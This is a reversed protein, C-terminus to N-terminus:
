SRAFYYSEQDTLQFVLKHVEDDFMVMAEGTDSLKIQEIHEPALQDRYAAGIMDAESGEQRFFIKILTNNSIFPGWTSPQGAQGFYTTANQDATWMAAQYNRWTKTAMAVYQELSPVSAMFKFEDFITILGQQRQRRHGDRVWRNLAEFGHDYYLPLLERDAHQLDYAVVDSGFDWRFTTPTNFLHARSGLLRAEIEEALTAAALAMNESTRQAVRRLAQVLQELRPSAHPGREHMEVLRAGNLGYLADDQLARDLAGYEFNLDRAAFRVQDGEQYSRGLLISLKRAVHSAQRGMEASLPDLMNIAADTAVNIYTAGSGVAECLWQCKGVPDFMIVQDGQVAQREALMSLAVTKGSGPRGVAMLHANEVRQNGWVNFHITMGEHPDYGWLTGDLRSTKRYGWPTVDAVGSSLTNRWVLPTKIAQTPQTTFLQLHDLQAGRMQELQMRLGLLARLTEAQQRLLALTPAHLLIAYSVEHLSQVDLEQLAAQASDYARRTRADAVAFKGFVAEKLVTV